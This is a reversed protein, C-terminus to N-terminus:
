TARTPSISGAEILGARAAATAGAKTSGRASAGEAQALGPPAAGRDRRQVLDALGEVETLDLKGNEFARRAFEGPEALRTGDLSSCPM